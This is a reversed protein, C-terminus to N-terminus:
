ILITIIYCGIYKAMTKIYEIFYKSMISLSKRICTINYIHYEEILYPVLVFLVKIISKVIVLIIIFYVIYKYSVNLINM